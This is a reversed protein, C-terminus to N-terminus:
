VVSKRDRNYPNVLDSSLIWGCLTGSDCTSEAPCAAANEVCIQNSSGLTTNSKIPCNFSYDVFDDDYCHINKIRSEQLSLIICQYLNVTLELVAVVLNAKKNYTCEM